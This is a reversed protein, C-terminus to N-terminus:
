CRKVSMWSGACVAFQDFKMLALKRSARELWELGSGCAMTLFPRCSRATLRYIVTVAKEMDGQIAEVQYWDAIRVLELLKYLGNDVTVSEWCGPAVAKSFLLQDEEEMMLAQGENTGIEGALKARWVLSLMSLFFGNMKEM